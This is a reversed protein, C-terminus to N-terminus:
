GKGQEQADELLMESYGIIANMPTRLEHSMNALFSSKARSAELAQDRAHILEFNAGQLDTVLAANSIAVAAQSALSEILGEFHHSFPIVHKSDKMDRANLLQLVGIVDGEHNRMPVVLM